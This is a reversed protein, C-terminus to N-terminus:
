TLRITGKSVRILGCEEMAALTRNLSRISIGALEALIDKTYPFYGKENLHEQLILLIKERLVLREANVKNDGAKLLRDCHVRLIALSFASCHTWLWLFQEKTFRYLTCPTMAIISRDSYSLGVMEMEGLFDGEHYLDIIVPGGEPIDHILKACGSQLIYFHEVPVSAQTIYEGPGKTVPVAAALREPPITQLLPTQYMEM